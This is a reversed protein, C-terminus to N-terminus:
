NISSGVTYFYKLETDKGDGSVTKKETMKALAFENVKVTHTNIETRWKDLWHSIKKGEWNVHIVAVKVYSMILMYRIM